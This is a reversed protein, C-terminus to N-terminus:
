METLVQIGEKDIPLKESEWQGEVSASLDAGNSVM